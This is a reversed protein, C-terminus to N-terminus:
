KEGRLMSALRDYSYGVEKILLADVDSYQIFKDVDVRALEREQLSLVEMLSRVRSNSNAKKHVYDFVFEKRFIISFAIGHFSNTLILDANEIYGLFENVSISERNLVGPLQQNGDQINIIKRGTKEAVLKAYELLENYRNVCYLLIYNSEIPKKSILRWKETSVLFTPDIVQACDKDQPVFSKFIAVGEKERINVYTFDKLLEAYGQNYQEPIDNITAYGFSAAYSGKKSCDDVFDLLYSKDGQHLGLSWVQDSGSIFLDYQLNSNNINKKTYRKSLSVNEALFKQFVAIKHKYKKYYLIHKLIEKCSKQAFISYHYNRRVREEDYNLVETEYGLSKIAQQLAYTQLVAGYNPVTHHTITCVKKETSM